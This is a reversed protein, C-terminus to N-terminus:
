WKIVSFVMQLIDKVNYKEKKADNKERRQDRKIIQSIFIRREEKRFNALATKKLAWWLLKREKKKKRLGFFYTSPTLSSGVNKEKMELIDVFFMFVNSFIFVFFSSKAVSSFKKTIRQTFCVFMCKFMHPHHWICM